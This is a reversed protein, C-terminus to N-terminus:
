FQELIKCAAVNKNYQCISLPTDGDNNREFLNLKLNRALYELINTNNKNVKACLHLINNDTGKERIRYDAGRSLLLKVCEMRPTPSVIALM